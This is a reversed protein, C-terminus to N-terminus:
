RQYFSEAEVHKGQVRYIEALNHLILAVKSHDAGLAREWIGWARQSFSEAEVYKGQEYALITMGNLSHAVTPHEPGLVQEQISLAKQYLREAKEYQRQVLYLDAMNLFLYTMQFHDSGLEKEWISKARQYFEEAKEYKGQGVYLGALGYLPYTVQLHDSGLEKEWIDKARQYFEEAKEYKGQTRYLKGLGYLPYAAQPHETGFAQKWIHWARRYFAEAETFQMRVASSAAAKVLISALDLNEHQWSNTQIICALVHPLLRDDRKLQIDELLEVEPFIRNLAVILREIWMRREAEGMGDQLVAQVLRHMSLTKERPQRKMLSYACVTAVLKNWSLMDTCAAALTPGLHDGKELFLEEPIGDPHLLACVKLLDVAAPHQQAIATISLSLTTVVSDPHDTSERGRQGLLVARHAQFLQLYDQLSCQTEEIYAGAQDLALPLGEMAEVIKSAEMVEAFSCADLPEELSLRRSRHLLFRTGEEQSMREVELPYALTGLSQRRTTFFLSGEPSTPLVSAILEREEVNDVILLWDRHTSLWRNVAAVVKQQDPEQREPLELLLALASYSSLISEMTDANLWFISAYQQAYRYAYEIAMQTKGIGGLGSLVLSQTLAAAKEQRLLMHLRQMLEERGTFFPNRRYPVNWRTAVGTLSAELLRATEQEDLHLCKALELVTGRTDPLRDGREWAGITNRHVALQEAVQQQGIQKQKRFAKLLEGFSAVHEYEM